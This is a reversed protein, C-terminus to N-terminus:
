LRIVDLKVEIIKYFFFFRIRQEKIENWFPIITVYLRMYMHNQSEGARYTSHPDEEGSRFGM